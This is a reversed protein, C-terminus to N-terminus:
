TKVDGTAPSIDSTDNVTSYRSIRLDYFTRPSLSHTIAVYMMNHLTSMKGSASWDVPLFLNKGSNLLGRIVGAQTGVTRENRYTERDRGIWQNNYEFLGGFKVKMNDTPRFTINASGNYNSLAPVFTGVDNYFGRTTGSPYKPAMRSTKGSVLFAVGKAVPGSVNGEVEHGSVETYDSRQHIIRGTVPDRENEWTGDGWKMKDKHSAADYVNEGWHKKGAPAYRYETWGHFRSGGDKTVISIVGAQANGYEANMGGTVVSLEQVASRNVSKWNHSGAGDTNVIKVGDVYYAVDGGTRSRWEGTRNSGRLRDSGDLHVGPQLTIMESTSRVIPLQEIQDAGVVYKSFTKDVEVPPREARVVLEQLELATATLDFNVETTVDAQVRVDTKSSPQYGVLSAKVTYLGPDVRLIVFFGEPDAIAGQGTGELIVSSGPLPEGQEDLVKGMIKGFTGADAQTHLGFVIALFLVGVLVGVKRM